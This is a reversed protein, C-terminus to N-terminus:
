FNGMLVQQAPAALFHRGVPNNLMRTQYEIGTEKRARLGEHALRERSQRATATMMVPAHVRAPPSFDSSALELEEDHNVRVVQNDALLATAPNLFKRKQEKLYRTPNVSFAIFEGVAFTLFKKRQFIAWSSVSVNKQAFSDTYRQELTPIDLTRLDRQEDPTLLGIIDTTIRFWEKKQSQDFIGTRTARNMFRLFKEMSFINSQM